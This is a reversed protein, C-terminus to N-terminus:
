FASERFNFKFFSFIQPLFAETIFSGLIKENAPESYREKALQLYREALQANKLASAMSFFWSCGDTIVHLCSSM